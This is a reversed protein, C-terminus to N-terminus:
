QTLARGSYALSQRPQERHREGHVDAMRHHGHCPHRDGRRL